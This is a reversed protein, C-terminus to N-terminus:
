KLPLVHKDQGAFQPIQVEPVFQVLQVAGEVRSAAVSVQIMLQVKAILLQVFQVAVTGIEQVNHTRPYKKFVVLLVQVILQPSPTRALM